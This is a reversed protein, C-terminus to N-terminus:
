VGIQHEFMRDAAVGRRAAEVDRYLHTFYLVQVRGALEGLIEFAACAREDDFDVFLDDLVLPVIPHHEFHTELSALRLAFYLQARTGRSLDAVEVEEAGRVLRLTREGVGISLRTYRGLTLRSFLESARRAIPGAFRDAYRAIQAELVVKATRIMLYERLLARTEAGLVVAHQRAWAVDESGYRKLGEAYSAARHEADHTREELDDLEETLEDIRSSLRDHTTGKAEERLEWLDRGASKQLLGRVLADREQDLAVARRSRAEVARLADVTTVGATRMLESLQAQTSSVQSRAERLRTEAAVISAGVHRREEALRRSGAIREILQEGADIPDLGTLEIAHRETLRRVDDQFALNDREIGEIRQELQRAEALVERLESVATLVDSVRAVTLEEGLALESATKQFSEEWVRLRHEASESITSPLPPAGRPAPANRGAIM